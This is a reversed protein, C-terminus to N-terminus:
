SHHGWEEMVGNKRRIEPLFRGLEAMDMLNALFVAGISLVCMILPKIWLRERLRNIVFSLHDGMKPKGPVNAAADSFASKM